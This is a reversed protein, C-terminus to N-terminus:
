KEVRHKTVTRSGEQSDVLITDNAVFFTLSHGTTTDSSANSITPQGGSLVFKGDAATYDAQEATGRRDGERVIVNGLALVRNLQRAGGLPTSAAAPTPASSAPPGLFADLTQSELSGQDSSAFVGGELHAKGQDNLYTLSPAKIKWLTPKSPSSDKAPKAAPAGPLATLPGSAQPFVAVVHGSAKLRKDDRWIEIQESELVSDGQWLRAHGWYTVHGANVSGALSDASVHAPGSGLGVADNQASATYTSIVGGSAHLDGSTQNITVNAATTRSMSDSIVPSGDLTITDTPRVINARAATAQRDAQQFHVNGTEDVTEWEGHADFKAVMESATVTQVPSNGATRHVEVGSHGILKDLRNDPGIQAVFQKAQLTMSDKPGKSEITAPALTEASEVHQQDISGSAANASSSAGPPASFKLRMSDTRLDHAEAGQHLEAMVGGTATMQDVLNRSPIMAFEVRKASFHDAGAPSQRIGAVNGDAVIRAIWGAPNLFAEFRDATVAITSHAEAARVQPHGSAVIHQAHFSPDLEISITDAAIQRAGEKVTAPGALVVTRDKRRIELSSGSAIAPMGSTQESPAMEFEVAREIRVVGDQSSYSAGTGHGTGSPFRFDVAAPTSAEGTNRNFSLNSTTVDLQDATPQGSKAAPQAASRMDITVEGECRVDGSDPAYSCEHTHINDNRSGDRGYVTIWVDELLARNEDKYQTAHSARVTFITRDQDVKSFSFQASQQQVTAPVAKPAARRIRAQRNDREVYIGIAILAIAGAAMASWRAYRAAERNRL